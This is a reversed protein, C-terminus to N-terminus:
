SFIIVIAFCIIDYNSVDEAFFCSQMGFVEKVAYHVMIPSIICLDKREKEVLSKGVM